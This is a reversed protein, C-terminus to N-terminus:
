PSGSVGRLFPVVALLLFSPLVCLVLPLVMLVPARLLETRHVRSRDARRRAAFAELAGVLPVGERQAVDITVGLSAPGEGGSRRLADSWRLGLRSMRRARALTPTIEAVVDLAQTLGAGGRLTAVLLDAADAAPDTAPPRPVLRAIWAMGAGALAAGVVMIALGAADFVPARQLPLLPLFVLPLGAVLRASLRAGAGASNGDDSAARRAELGAAVGEVTAALDGGLRLHLAFAAALTSEDGPGFGVAVLARDTEEGLRLRRGLRALSLRMEEPADRHWGIMAFRPNVGTRLVAALARLAEARAQLDNM